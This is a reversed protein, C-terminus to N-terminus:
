FVDGSFLRLLNASNNVLLASSLRGATIKLQDATAANYTLENHAWDATDSSFVPSATTSNKIFGLSIGVPGANASGGADQVGGPMILFPGTKEQVSFGLGATKKDPYTQTKLGTANQQWTSPTQAFVPNLILSQHNFFLFATFFLVIKVRINKMLRLENIM